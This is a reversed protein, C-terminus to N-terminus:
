INVILEAVELAFSEISRVQNLASSEYKVNELELIKNALDNATGDFFFLNPQTREIFTEIRNVLVKVHNSLAEEIPLGFGEDFSACVAISSSRYLKKVEADSLNQFWRFRAGYEPHELIQRKDVLWGYNGVFFLKFDQNKSILINFAEIIILHQKRPEITGVSIITRSPKISPPAELFQKFAGLPIVKLQASSSWGLSVFDSLSKQSNFVIVDSLIAIKQIYVRFLKSFELGKDFLNPHLIPILDYVVSVIKLHNTNKLFYLKSFDLSFDYDLLLLTSVSEINHLKGNLIPDTLFYDSKKYNESLELSSANVGTFMFGHQDKLKFLSKHTEITIRQIGSLLNQRSLNSINSGVRIV